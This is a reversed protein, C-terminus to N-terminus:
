VRLQVNDGSQVIEYLPTADGWGYRGDKVDSVGDGTTDTKVSDYPPNKAATYGVMAEIAAVIDEEYQGPIETDVVSVDDTGLKSVKFGVRVDRKGIKVAVIDNDKSDVTLARVKITTM